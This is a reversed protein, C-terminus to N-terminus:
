RGGSQPLLDKLKHYIEGSKDFKLKYCPVTAVIDEMLTLMNEWWDRTVLPKILCGLLRALNDKRNVSLLIDNERSQELFFIAKLPASNASVIPLTGHSWNGHISYGQPWKRIIMRDDCLIEAKDQLLTAITSKGAGSHGVFLFGTGDMNIGDSHLYCGSREALLRALLIQDTPAMTLSGMQGQQYGDEVLSGNYIEMRTHDPSVFSIQRVEKTAPNPSTELIYVWHQENKYIVWPSKKYVQQGYEAPEPLYFHHTLHINDSGPGDVEFLKFKPAFTNDNIPLDSDFRITIGAVQYYRTYM